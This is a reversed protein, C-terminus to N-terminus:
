QVPWDALEFKKQVNATHEGYHREMQGLLRRLTWRSGPAPEDLDVGDLLYAFREVLASAREMQM